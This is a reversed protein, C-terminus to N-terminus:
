HAIHVTILQTCHKGMLDPYEAFCQDFTEIPNPVDNAPSSKASDDSEDLFVRSTTTNNNSLRIEAVKEASM